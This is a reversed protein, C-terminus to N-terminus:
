TSTFLRVGLLPRKVIPLPSSETLIDIGSGDLRALQRAYLQQGITNVAEMFNGPAYYNVYTDTTGLPFAIGEVDSVLRETTVGDALTVTANYEEFVVGNFTFGSRLDDRLPQQANANAAELRLTGRECLLM